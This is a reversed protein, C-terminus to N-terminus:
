MKLSKAEQVDGKGTGPNPSMVRPGLRILIPKRQVEFTLNM